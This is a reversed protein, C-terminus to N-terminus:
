GNVLRVTVGDTPTGVKRLRIRVREAKATSAVQFSQGVRETYITDGFSRVTATGTIDLMEVDRDLITIETGDNMGTLTYNVTNNIVVTAGDSTYTPTDGGSVNITVTGTGASVYIASSSSGNAGYGSFTLGSFNYTTATDLEIAHGAGEQIFETDHLGSTTGFTPDQLCAEGSASLTRIISNQIEASSQTLLKCSIDAMDVDVVSTLTINRHNVILASILAVGSTGTFVLDPRTDIAGSNYLGGRGIITNQLTVDTSANGLDILLGVDGTDYMGDPFIVITDLATTFQTAAASGGNRGIDLRGRVLIVGAAQAVVGYRNNVTGQDFDVFDQFVGDPSGGFLELGTGIDIADFAFNESKANGNIMACQAGFWDVATWTPTGSDLTGDQWFTVDPNIPVLLYGGQPPRYQTFQPHPAASGALIWGRKANSASGAHAVVGRTANVDAFDTVVVKFFILKRTVGTIDVAGAGPDYQVGGLSSSTIQKNVVNTGQYKNQPEASPAPGSAGFNSWNTNADSANVRTMVQTPAQVTVAM